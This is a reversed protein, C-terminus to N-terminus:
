RPPDFRYVEVSEVDLSDVAVVALYSEGFYPAVREKRMVAPLQGVLRGERDFVEWKTKDATAVEVWIRGAPDLHFDVVPPKQEPKSPSRPQCSVGSAEELFARYEELGADWEAESVGVPTVQREIIRLTDAVADLFVIRYDASWIVALAMEQAPQQMLKPSFPIDFFSIAGDSRDCIINASPAAELTVPRVEGEVGAATHRVFLREIRDDVSELSWAYAEDSAVQYLRL